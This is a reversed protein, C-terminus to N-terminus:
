RLKFLAGRPITEYAGMDVIGSYRDLRSYGALDVAGSMWAMNTGANVGPSQADLRFSEASFLPPNTINGEGSGMESAPYSCSYVVGGTLAAGSLCLNPQSGAANDYILCNVAHVGSVEATTVSVYLGGGTTAAENSVVTCNALTNSNDRNQASCYIGGGYPALNYAFVNNRLALNRADSRIYLGGGYSYGTGTVMNSIIRCNEIAAEGPAAAGYYCYIGGGSNTAANCAITSDAVVGKRSLLIGGGDLGANGSILCNSIFGNQDMFVGGGSIPCRNSIIDCAIVAGNERILVGGGGYSTDRESLNYAISCREARALPGNLCVGGGHLGVNEKVRCDRLVGAAIYVGGGYIAADAYGNSITFGTVVANSHNINLCRVSGNGDLSPQGAGGAGALWVGKSVALEASLLYVGNSVLIADGSVSQHLANSITRLATPWNTGAAADQGLTSVYWTTAGRGPLPLGLGVIWALTVCRQLVRM